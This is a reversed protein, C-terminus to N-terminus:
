DLQCRKVVLLEIRDPLNHVVAVMKGQRSQTGREAGVIVLLTRNPADQLVLRRQDAM